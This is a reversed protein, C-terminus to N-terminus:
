SVTRPPASPHRISMVPVKPDDPPLNTRAPLTLVIETFDNLQSDVEMKGSHHRMITQCISLGLGMKEPSSERSYFPDSIRQLVEPTMGEGTDRIRVVLNKEEEYGSVTIQRLREPATKKLASCANLLLNVFVQVLASPHCDLLLRGALHLEVKINARTIDRHCFKIAKEVLDSLDVNEIAPNIEPQAFSRLDTVIDSIRKHQTMAEGLAEDVDENENVAQAYSLAQASSNVPNIIEHLLGKAMHNLAQYKQQQILQEETTRLTRLTTSLVENKEKVLFQMAFLNRFMWHTFVAMTPAMLMCMFVYWNNLTQMVKMFAENPGVLAMCVLVLLVLHLALVIFTHKISATVTGLFSITFLAGFIPEIGGGASYFGLYAFGFTMGYFLYLMLPYCQRVWSLQHVVLLSLASSLHIYALPHVRTWDWTGILQQSIFFLSGAIAALLAFDSFIPRLKTNMSNAYVIEFERQKETSLTRLGAVGKLLSM